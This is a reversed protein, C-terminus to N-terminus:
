KVPIVEPLIHRPVFALCHYGHTSLDSRTEGDMLLGIETMAGTAVDLTVLGLDYKSEDWVMAYITGDRAKELDMLAASTADINTTSQLSIYQSIQGNTGAKLVESWAGIIVQDDSSGYTLGGSSWHTEKDNDLMVPYHTGAVGTSKNFTVLSMCYEINSYIVGMINGDPALILDAIGDWASEINNNLLSAEGTKMNVSYFCGNGQATASSFCMGTAPDYVLGRLGALPESDHVIMGKLTLQGTTTNVRHVTGDSRKVVVLDLIDTVKVSVTLTGEVQFVAVDDTPNAPAPESASWDFEFNDSTLDMDGSSVKVMVVSGEEVKGPDAVWSSGDDTSFLLSLTGGATYEEDDIVGANVSFTVPDEDKKCGPLVVLIMLAVAAIGPIIRKM